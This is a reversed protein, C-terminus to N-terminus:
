SGSAQLSLGTSTLCRLNSRLWRSPSSPLSRFAPGASRSRRLTLNKWIVRTKRQCPRCSIKREGGVTDRDVTSLSRSHFNRKERNREGRDRVFNRLHTVQDSGTSALCATSFSSGNHPCSTPISSAKSSRPGPNESRLTLAKATALSSRASLSTLVLIRQATDLLYILFQM